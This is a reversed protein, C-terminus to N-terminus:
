LYYKNKIYYSFNKKVEFNKIAKNIIQEDIQIKTNFFFEFLIKSKSLLVLLLFFYKIKLIKINFWNKKEKILTTYIVSSLYESPKKIIFNNLKSIKDKSYITKMWELNLGKFEDFENTNDPNPFVTYMVYPFLRIKKKLDYLEFYLKIYRELNWNNKHKMLNFLKKPETVIPNLISLYKEVYKNSLIVYRDTFGGYGEGDPIWINEDDFIEIPPHKIPWFFDSRTIIFKDYKDILNNEKLNQLLLWRYYMLISSSGVREKTWNLNPKSKNSEISTYGKIGGLWFDKIDLLLRWNVDNEANGLIKKQAYDFAPAYDDGIEDNSWKYKANKWFPNQYNYDKNIGICLALDANLEDLVNKKFNDWTVEHSRTQAIICVLTKTM